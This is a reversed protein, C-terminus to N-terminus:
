GDGFIGFKAKGSMVERRGVVSAHRSRNVLHYDAIVEERSFYEVLEAQKKDVM